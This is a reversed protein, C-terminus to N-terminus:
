AHRRVEHLFEVGVYVMLGVFITVTALDFANATPIICAILVLTVVGAAYPLMDLAASLYQSAIYTFPIAPSLDNPDPM